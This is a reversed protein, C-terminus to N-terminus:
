PRRKYRIVKGTQTDAVYALSDDCGVAVPVQLPQGQADLEVNVLQVFSADPAYRLVRRNGGDVVYVYGQLDVAVDTPGNFGAGTGGGDLQYFGTSPASDSLKQVWNKGYDAVYLAAGGAGSWFLGRPDVVTGIGSGEEVVWTSDRHWNAGPM